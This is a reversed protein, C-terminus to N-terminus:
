LNNKIMMSTLYTSFTKTSEVGTSFKRIENQNATGYKSLMAKMAKYAGKDGGRISVLEILSKDLGQAALLQLEVFSIKSGKSKNTPQQTSLDISRDNEPVGVGKMSIQSTRRYPLDYVLHEIPTTYTLGKEKRYTLKQTFKHGLSKGIKINRRTSLKSKVNNPAVIVLHKTGNELSLMFNDFDKDTMKKFMKIYLENNGSGPLIKEIYKLIFSEVAKRAM